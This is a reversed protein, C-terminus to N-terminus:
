TPGGKGFFYRGERRQQSCIVRGAKRLGRRSCHEELWRMAEWPIVTSKGTGTPGHIIIVRSNVTQSLDVPDMTPPEFIQELQIRLTPVVDHAALQRADVAQDLKMTMQSKEEAMRPVNPSVESMPPPPPPPQASATSFMARPWKPPELQVQGKGVLPLLFLLGTKAMRISPERGETPCPQAAVRSGGKRFVAVSLCVSMLGYRSCDRRRLDRGIETWLPIVVRCSM